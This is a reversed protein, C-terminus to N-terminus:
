KATAARARGLQRAWQEARVGWTANEPLERVFVEMVVESDIHHKVLVQKTNLFYIDTTKAGKIEAENALWFLRDGLDRKAM